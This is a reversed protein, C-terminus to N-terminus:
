ILGIRKRRSLTKTQKKRKLLAPRDGWLAYKRAESIKKDEKRRKLIAKAHTVEKQHQREWWTGSVEKKKPPEEKVPQGVYRSQISKMPQPKRKLRSFISSKKKPSSQSSAGSSASPSDNVERYQGEIANPKEVKIVTVRTRKARPKRAKGVEQNQRVIVQRYPVLEYGM